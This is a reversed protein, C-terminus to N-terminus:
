NPKYSLKTMIDPVLLSLASAQVTACEGRAKHASTSAIGSVVNDFCTPLGTLTEKLFGLEPTIIGHTDHEIVDLASILKEFSERPRTLRYGDMNNM